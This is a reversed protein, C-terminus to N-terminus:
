APPPSPSPPPPSDRNLLNLPDLLKTLETEGFLDGLVFDEHLLDFMAVTKCDSEDFISECMTTAGPFFARTATLLPAFILLRWM